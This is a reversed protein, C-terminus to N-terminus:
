LDQFNKMRQIDLVGSMARNTVSIGVEAVAAMPNLGSLLALSIKNTSIPTEYLPKLYNGTLFFSCLNIIKLKEMIAETMARALLPIEFFVALLRGEGTKAASAVSTMKSSIFLELPDVTCSHCETFEVLRLPKFNHMQVLGVLKSEVPVGSKLLMGSILVNSVTAFGVMGKPVVVEGLEEGESAQAVLNSFCIGAKFIHEMTKLAASFDRRAFLSVNIPVNGTLSNADFTTLYSLLKIKGALFGIKDCALANGLEEMGAETIERGDRKGMSQTLGREDMMRLHYRVSRECLDIGQENLLRSIVRGGLPGGSDSLVKLIALIKREVDHTEQGIMKSTM